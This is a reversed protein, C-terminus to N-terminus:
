DRGSVSTTSHVPAPLTIWLDRVISQWSRSYRHYRGSSAEQAVLFVRALSSASRIRARRTLHLEKLRLPEIRDEPCAVSESVFEVRELIQHFHRVKAQWDEENTDLSDRLVQWATKKRWGCVQSAHRRYMMLSEELPVGSSVVSGLLVIWYDHMWDAPIPLLIERFSSRLAMTAGTILNYRLLAEVQGPGSFHKLKRRIEVADWLQEGQSEGKEDVMQADSFVYAANPNKEFADRLKALKDQKWIDDQDCLAIFEGQCLRIAKEFNKAPGLREENWFLRVPFPAKKCFEKLIEPTQDTSRDDCVVLEDPLENQSAISGVQQSLYRAGNYTCM